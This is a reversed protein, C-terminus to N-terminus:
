LIFTYLHRNLSGVSESKTNNSSTSSREQTAKELLNNWLVNINVAYIESHEWSSHKITANYKCPYSQPVCPESAQGKLARETSTLNADCGPSLSYSKPLVFGCFVGIGLALSGLGTGVSSFYKKSCKCLQLWIVTNQESRYCTTWVVESPGSTVSLM